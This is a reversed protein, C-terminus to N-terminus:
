KTKKGKANPGWAPTVPCVLTVIAKFYRMLKDANAPQLKDFPFEAIKVLVGAMMTMAVGAEYQEQTPASQLARMLHLNAIIKTKVTQLLATLKEAPTLKSAPDQLLHVAEGSQLCLQQTWKWLKLESYQGIQGALNFKEEEMARRIQEKKEDPLGQFGPNAEVEERHKVKYEAVWDKVAQDEAFETGLFRALGMLYKEKLATKATNTMTTPQM